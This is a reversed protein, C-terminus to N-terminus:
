KAGQTMLAEWSEFSQVPIRIAPRKTGPEGIKLAQLRGSEVEKYITRPNLGYRKAADKVSLYGM